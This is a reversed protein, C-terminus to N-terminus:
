AEWEMYQHNGVINDPLERENERSGTTALLQAEFGERMRVLHVLLTLSDAYDPSRFGRAKFEKKGEVRVTKGPKFRRTCLEPRLLDVNLSPSIKLYDFEMYARTAFFLETVVGDYLESAKEESEAYLKMDSAGAGFHIGVCEPGLGGDRADSRLIDHTGTGNGTRDCIVWYDKIGMQQCYMKVQSAIWMTQTLRKSPDNKIIEYQGEAQLSYKEHDFKIFTRNPTFYGDALGFRGVTFIAKDEGEFAQDLSACYTVQGIFRLQGIAKDFFDHPIVNISLGQEPFWGRGMTYYEPDTDGRALYRRYGDHTLLGPFVQKRQVVNECRAGDLRVVDWGLKSKWEVSSEIDISSWGDKPECRKGFKSDRDRPNAAAGIKILDVGDLTILMNDIDEWVGSPIEEAEDLIVRIRSLIGFKPHAKLRPKPHFGQLRGAGEDGAPIAVLHIGQSDDDSAQISYTKVEGPLPIASQTHLRKLHAFANRQAHEQTASVVKVATYLPDELWDLLFYAGLSYSKGMAGAGQVMLTATRRTAEWIRRVSEPEASFLNSGWLIHATEAYLGRYLMGPILRQLYRNGEGVNVEPVNKVYAGLLIRACDDLNQEHAAASAELIYSEM